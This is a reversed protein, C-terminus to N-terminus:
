YNITSISDSIFLVLVIRRSLKRLKIHVVVGTDIDYVFLGRKKSRFIHREKDIVRGPYIQEAKTVKDGNRVARLASAYEIGNNKFYSYYM